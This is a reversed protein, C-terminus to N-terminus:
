YPRDHTTTTSTVATIGSTRGGNELSLVLVAPPARDEINFSLSLTLGCLEYRSLLQPFSPLFNIAPFLM